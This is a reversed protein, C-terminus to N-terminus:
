GAPAIWSTRYKRWNPVEAHIDDNELVHWGWKRRILIWSAMQEPPVWSDWAWGYNHASDGPANAPYVCGPRSSSGFQGSAVCAKYADRLESQEAWTRRVSTVTVALGTRTAESVAGEAYQRLRPDLGRLSLM